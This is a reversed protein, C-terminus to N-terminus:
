VCESGFSGGDSFYRSGTWFYWCGKGKNLTNLREVERIAEDASTLIEKVTIDYKDFRISPGFESPGGSDHHYFDIRVVAYVTTHDNRRTM